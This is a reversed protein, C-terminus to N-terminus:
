KSGSITGRVTPLASYTFRFKVRIGLTKDECRCQLGVKLALPNLCLRAILLKSSNKLESLKTNYQIANKRRKRELHHSRRDHVFVDALASADHTLHEPVGLHPTPLAPLEM